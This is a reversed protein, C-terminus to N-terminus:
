DFLEPNLMMHTRIYTIYIMQAQIEKEIFDAYYYESTITFILSMHTFDTVYLTSEM